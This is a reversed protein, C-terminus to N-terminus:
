KIPTSKGPKTFRQALDDAVIKAGPRNDRAQMKVNRYYSLASSYAESGSLMAIDELMRFIEAAPTLLRSSLKYGNVDAALEDADVYDPKFQAHTVVYSASKEIFPLTRDASRILTKREDDSLVVAHPKLTNFITQLSTKITNEEDVTLVFNIRNETM